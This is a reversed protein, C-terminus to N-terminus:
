VRFHARIYCVLFCMGASFGLSPDKHLVFSFVYGHFVSQM